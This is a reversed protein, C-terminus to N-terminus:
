GRKTISDAIKIHRIYEDWRGAAWHWVANDRHWQCVAKMTDSLKPKKM